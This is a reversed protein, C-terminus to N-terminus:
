LLRLGHKKEQLNHVAQQLQEASINFRRRDPLQSPLKELLPRLTEAFLLRNVTDLQHQKLEAELKHMYSGIASEALLSTVSLMAPTIILDHLGIGGTKIALAMATADTTVRTARLANLTIPQELLKNYLRHATADVDQQFNEHYLAVEREYRKLIAAKRERLVSSADKWWGIAASEQETRELLRDFLVIMIHEGIQKLLRVEPGVGELSTNKGLSFLKRVPWTMIRRTHGLLTALGPIELLNLLEILAKQFTHYHHPHDLYDRRYDQLASQLTQEVLVNWDAAAKLEANVPELWSEWYKSLLQQQHLAQKKVQVKKQLVILSNLAYDPWVPTGSLKNFYLPVVDPFADSRTQLWKEKLSPLIFQENGESLKNVCILTPQHLPEINSMLEWVSQDAYKEKSVVLVLMDALAITRIVGEKYDVADISDFDPTDWLICPPLLPAPRVNESLSYCDYRAASLQQESLQQFRGFYGQLGSCESIGLHNCYGHPHVTYGALPSVAAMDCGLFLNVLSSKGAQTPGIVAIQLPFVPETELLRGKRIYAEAYLLQEVRQQYDFALPERTDLQSVVTQYRQKLVQIFELM